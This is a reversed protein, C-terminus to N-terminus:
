GQIRVERPKVEGLGPDVRKRARGCGVGSASIIVSSKSPDFFARKKPKELTLDMKESGSERKGLEKGGERWVEWERNGSKVKPM